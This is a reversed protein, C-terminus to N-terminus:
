SEGGASIVDLFVNELSPKTIELNALEIGNGWLLHLIAEPNSVSIEYDVDQRIIEASEGSAYILEEIGISSSSFTLKSKATEVSKLEKPKGEKVIKGDVMISVHNTVQEIEEFIHTTFLLTGGDNQFAKIWNWFIQRSEVDMGVTPEDLILLEPNGILAVALAVRRRQGESLKYILEGTLGDLGCIKRVKSSAAPQDYYSSYLNIVEHVKLFPPISPKQLMVGIRNRIARKKPDSGLLKVTGVDTKRLGLMLSITTTKGAGNTGLLTHVEGKPINITVDKIIPKGSLKKSVNACEVALNLPMM